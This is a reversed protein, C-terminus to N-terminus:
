REREGRIKAIDVYARTVLPPLLLFKVNQIGMKMKRDNKINNNNSNNTAM